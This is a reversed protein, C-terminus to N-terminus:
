QAWAPAAVATAAPAILSPLPKQTSPFPMLEQCPPAPQETISCTDPPLATQLCCVASESCPASAGHNRCIQICQISPCCSCFWYPQTAAHRSTHPSLDKSPYSGITSGMGQRTPGEGQMRLHGPMALRTPRLTHKHWAWFGKFLPHQTNLYAQLMPCLSCAYVCVCAHVEGGKINWVSWQHLGHM